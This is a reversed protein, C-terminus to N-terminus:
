QIYWSKTRDKAQHHSTAASVHQWTKLEASKIRTTDTVTIFQWM